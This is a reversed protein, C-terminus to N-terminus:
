QLKGFDKILTLMNKELIRYKNKQETLQGDMLSIRVNLSKEEQDKLEIM